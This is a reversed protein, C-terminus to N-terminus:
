ENRNISFALKRRESWTLNVGVLIDSILGVFKYHM